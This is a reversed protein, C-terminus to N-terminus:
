RVKFEPLYDSDVKQYAEPSLIQGDSTVYEGKSVTVSDGTWSVIVDITGDGNDSASVGSDLVASVETLNFGEWRVAKIVQPRLIFYGFSM